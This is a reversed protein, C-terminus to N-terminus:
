PQPTLSQPAPGLSHLRHCPKSCLAGVGSSSGTDDELRQPYERGRGLTYWSDLVVIYTIIGISELTFANGM